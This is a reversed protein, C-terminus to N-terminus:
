HVPALGLEDWLMREIPAGLAFEFSRIETGAATLECKYAIEYWVRNSRLAAAPAHLVNEKKRSNRLAHPALRTPRFEPKNRRVQEMAELACLQERQDMGTLNSLAARAQASRPDNLVDNAHFSTATVWNPRNGPTETVLKENTPPIPSPTAGSFREPAQLAAQKGAQFNRTSNDARVGTRSKQGSSAPSPVIEVSIPEQLARDVLIPASVGAVLAFLVLHLWLACVWPFRTLIFDNFGAAGAYGVPFV